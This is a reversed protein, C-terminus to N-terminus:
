GNNRVECKVSNNANWCKGNINYKCDEKCSDLDKIAIRKGDVFRGLQFELMFDDKTYTGKGTIEVFNHEAKCYICYLNKLHGGQRLQGKKRFVPLGERGCETCYFSSLNENGHCM